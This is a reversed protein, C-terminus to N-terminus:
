PEGEDSELSEVQIQSNSDFDEPIITAIHDRFHLPTEIDVSGLLTESTAGDILLYVAELEEYNTLISNVLSYVMQEEYTTGAAFNAIFGGHFDIIAMKQDTIYVERVHTSPPWLTEADPDEPQVTLLDVIQKIRAEMSPAQLLKVRVPILGEYRRHTYYIIYEKSEGFPDDFTREDLPVAQMDAPTQTQPQTQEQSQQCSVLLLCTALVAALYKM